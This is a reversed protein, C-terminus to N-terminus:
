MNGHCLIGRHRAHLPVAGATHTNCTRRTWCKCTSGFELSSRTGLLCRSAAAAPHAAGASRARQGCWPAAVVQQVGSRIQTETDSRANGNHQGHRQSAATRLRRRAADTQSGIAVQRISTTARAGPTRGECVSSDIAHDCPPVSASLSSQVGPARAKRGATAAAWRSCRRRKGKSLSARPLDHVSAHFRGRSVGTSRRFGAVLPAASLADGSKSVGSKPVTMTAAWWKPGNEPLLTRHAGREPSQNPLDRSCLVIPRLEFRNRRVSRSRKLPQEPAAFIVSARAWRYLLPTHHQTENMCGHQTLRRLWALVARLLTAAYRGRLLAEPKQSRLECTAGNWECGPGSFPKNARITCAPHGFQLTSDAVICV